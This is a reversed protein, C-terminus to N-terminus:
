LPANITLSGKLRQAIRIHGKQNPHILNQGELLMFSDINSSSWGVTKNLDIIPLAYLEAVKVAAEAYDKISLGLLNKEGSTDSWPQGTTPDTRNPLLSYPPTMIFIVIEPNVDLIKEIVTKYAGIFTNVDVSDMDGMPASQAWDNTGGMITVFFVSLDLANIRVDQHFADEAQGSVRSGGIGHNLYANLGLSQKVLNQYIGAATLSDGLSDGSVEKWVNDKRLLNDYSVPTGKNETPLVLGFGEYETEVSGEEFQYTDVTNIRKDVSVRVNYCGAPITVSKSGTSETGSLFDKQQGYFAIHKDHTRTYTKGPEVAIYDSAAYNTNPSLAGTLWDVFQGDAAANKDFLNKSKGLVLIDATVKSPGISSDEIITRGKYADKLEYGFPSYATIQDGLEIQFQDVLTKAVTTRLYAANSPTTFTNKEIVNSANGQIGSIYNFSSDYFAMRHNQNRTYTVQGLVPVFDSAVYLPNDLISGTTNDVFKNELVTEKNFLNKKPTFMVTKDPTVGGTKLNETGVSNEGVVPVSGGTMAEKVETTLDELTVGGKDLKSRLQTLTRLSEADSRDGITQFTQGDFTTRAAVIEANSNGADAIIEKTQEALQYTYQVDANIVNRMERFDHGVVGIGKRVNEDATAM